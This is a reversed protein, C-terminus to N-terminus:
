GHISRSNTAADLAEPLRLISEIHADEFTAPEAPHGVRITVMGLDAAPELNARRDDVLACRDPTPQGALQLAKTYAGPAPKNVMGLAEIGIISEFCEDLAMARLVRQAHAASANTFIFKSQPLSNLMARVAPEPSLFDEIPLDHVFRLYDDPDVGHEQVLGTLSTGFSELYRVRSADAQQQSLGIQEVMYRDIRDSIAQWIGNNAPYVTDDLDIFLVQLQSSM